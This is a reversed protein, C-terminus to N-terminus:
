VSEDRPSRRRYTKPSKSKSSKSSGTSDKRNKKRKGSSEGVGDGVSDGRVLVAVEPPVTEPSQRRCTSVLWGGGTILLALVAVVIIGRRESATVPNKMM